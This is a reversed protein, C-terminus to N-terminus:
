GTGPTAASRFLAALKETETDIAHRAIVRVHAADGMSRIRDPNSALCEELAHVLDDLSGAPVLWGNQPDHVLEPIGAVFTTIVPRRLAMAEMIVVPLGEAFSPLVLARSALIEERVANSSIWGTIRVQEALGHTVIAAELAQRMPGDGALVLEFYIGRSKLIAAAQMLLLQGKAECLRGVCVLRSSMSFPQVDPEYFARELGCHVVKIRPWDSFNTRL